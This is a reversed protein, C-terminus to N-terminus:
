KDVSPAFEKPMFDAAIVKDYPVSENLLEAGKLYTEVNDIQKPTAVPRFITRYKVIFARLLAPDFGRMNDAAVKAIDDTHAPDNIMTEADVVAAVVSHAREPHKKLYAGTTWVGNYAYDRFVEPGQGGQIDLVMKAIKLKDIAESQAPETSLAGDILGNKLGAVQPGTNGVPVIKVDEPNVGVQKLLYRLTMDTAAGITTIGLKLGKMDKLMEPYPKGLNPTPVENRVILGYPPLSQNVVLLRLDQGKGIITVGHEVAFAGFDSSGGVLINTVQIGTGYVLEAEVGHKEFLKYTQAVYLPLNVFAGQFASIRVKDLAQAPPASLLGAVLLLAAAVPRLKELRLASV